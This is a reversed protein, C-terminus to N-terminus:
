KRKRKKAALAALRAREKAARWQGFWIAANLLLMALLLWAGINLSTSAIAGMDKALAASFRLFGAIALVAALSGGAYVYFSAAHLKINEKFCLALGALVAAVALSLGVATVVLWPRAQAMMDDKLARVILENSDDFLAQILKVINYSTSKGGGGLGGLLEGLGGGLGGGLLGGLLDGLGGLSFTLTGLPLFLAGAPLLRPLIRLITKKM